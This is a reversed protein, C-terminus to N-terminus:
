NPKGKASAPAVSPKEEGPLSAEPVPGKEIQDLLAILQDRLYKACPVDMRLRCAPVIDLDIEESEETISFNCVGFQLNIVGNMVGRGMLTNVFTVGPDKYNSKM